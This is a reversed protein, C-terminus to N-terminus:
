CGQAHHGTTTKSPKRSGFKIEDTKDLKFKTIVAKGRAITVNVM